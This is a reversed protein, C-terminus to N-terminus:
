HIYNIDKSADKMCKNCLNTVYSDKLNDDNPTIMSNKLRVAYKKGCEECIMYECSIPATRCKFERNWNLELYDLEDENYYAWTGCGNEMKKNWNMKYDYRKDFYKDKTLEKTDSITGTTNLFPNVKIFDGIKRKLM